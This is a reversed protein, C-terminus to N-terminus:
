VEANSNERQQKKDAKITNLVILIPTAEKRGNPLADGVVSVACCIPIAMAMGGVNLLRREIWM